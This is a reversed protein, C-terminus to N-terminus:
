GLAAKFKNPNTRIHNIILTEGAPSAMAALMEEKTIVNVIKLRDKMNGNAAQQTPTKVDVTEGPSAMFSVKTTDQGGNGPVTFSGGSNFGKSTYTGYVTGPPNARRAARNAARNADQIQQGRIMAESPSQNGHSGGPIFGFGNDDPLYGAAQAAQNAQIQAERSAAAANKAIAEAVTMGAGLIANSIYDGATKGGLTLSKTVENYVYKGGEVFTDGWTKVTRGNLAEYRAIAMDQASMIKEAARAGGKDLAEELRPAADDVGIAFGKQIMEAVEKGKGVLEAAVKDANLGIEISRKQGAEDQWFTYWALTFAAWIKILGAISAEWDIIYSLLVIIAAGLATFPNALIIAFLGLLASGLPVIGASILTAISTLIVPGFVALMLPILPELAAAIPPIAQVLLALAQVAIAIANFLLTGITQVFAMVAPDQFADILAEIAVRLNESGSRSIEFMDGFANGL